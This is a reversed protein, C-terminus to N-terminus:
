LQHKIERIQEILMVGIISIFATILVTIIVILSRVPKERRDAPFAEELVYLSNENNKLSVELEGKINILSNLEKTSGIQKSVIAKYLQVAKYDNGEVIVTGDVGSSVKIKYQQGLVALTDIYGDVNQQLKAIQTGIAEYIKQKSQNAHLKNSADVKKAITNIISSALKPDTDFLSIEIADHETKKVEYNRNFKKRVKTKWYIKNTDIKYHEALHFSDIVFDIVPNSTAISLVRNVDSKDGFYDMKPNSESNFIAARDSLAQNIPYFTSWSYYLEDMVFVSFFASVIGSIFLLIFIPKKWKIVIRIAAILNFEQNM